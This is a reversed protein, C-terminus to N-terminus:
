WEDDEASILPEFKSGSSWMTSLITGVFGLNSLLPKTKKLTVLTLTDPIYKVRLTCYYFISVVALSSPNFRHLRSRGFKLFIYEPTYLFTQNIKIERGIEAQIKSQAQAKQLDGMRDLIHLDFNHIYRCYSGPIRHSKDHLAKNVDTLRECKINKEWPAYVYQTCVVYVRNAIRSAYM